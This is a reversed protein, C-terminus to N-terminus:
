GWVDHLSVDLLFGDQFSLVDRVFTFVGRDREIFSEDSEVSATRGDTGGKGHSLHDRQLFIDGVGVSFRLHQNDVIGNDVAGFCLKWM